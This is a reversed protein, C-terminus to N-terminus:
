QNGDGRVPVEVIGDSRAVRVTLGRPGRPSFAVLSRYVGPESAPDLRAEVLSGDSMIGRLRVDADRVPEGDRRSVRVTYDVGRANSSQAVEVRVDNGQPPSQPM